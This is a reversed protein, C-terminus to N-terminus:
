AKLISPSTIYGAVLYAEGDDINKSASEGYKNISAQEKDWNFSTIWEKQLDKLTRLSIGTSLSNNTSERAAVFEDSPLQTNRILDLMHPVRDSLNVEFPKVQFEKTPVADASLGFLTLGSLLLSLLSTSM